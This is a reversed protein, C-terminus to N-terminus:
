CNKWVFRPGEEGQVGDPVFGSKQLVRQSAINGPETEAEVRLVGPQEVAWRVMAIVAETALGRGEYEPKIGYGIEVSGDTQLGKFCIDGILQKGGDRFQMQWMTYWVYQEPVEICGTLMESYAKKMEEDPEERIKIQLAEVSVPHIYMRETTVMVM